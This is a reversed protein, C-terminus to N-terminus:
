RLLFIKNKIGSIYSSFNRPNGQIEHHGVTTGTKMFPCHCLITPLLGSHCFLWSLQKFSSCPCGLRGGCHSGTAVVASTAPAAVHRDCFHVARINVAPRTPLVLSSLFVDFPWLSTCDGEKMDIIYVIDFSNVQVGLYFLDISIYALRNWNRFNLNRPLGQGCPEVFLFKALGHM